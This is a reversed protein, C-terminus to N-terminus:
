HQPSLNLLGPVSTMHQCGEPLRTQHPLHLRFHDTSSIDFSKMKQGSHMHMPIAPVSKVMRLAAVVLRRLRMVSYSDDVIHETHDPVPFDRGQSKSDPM